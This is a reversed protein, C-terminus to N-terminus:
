NIVHNLVLVSVFSSCLDFYHLFVSLVIYVFGSELRESLPPHRSVPCVAALVHFLHVFLILLLCPPVCTLQSLSTRSVRGTKSMRYLM